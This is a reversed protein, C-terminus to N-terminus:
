GQLNTLLTEHWILSRKHCLQFCSLFHHELNKSKGVTLSDSLDYSHYDQSNNSMSRSVVTPHVTTYCHKTSTEENRTQIIIYQYDLVFKSMFFCCCFITFKLKKYLLTGSTWLLWWGQVVSVPILHFSLNWHHLCYCVLRPFVVAKMCSKM